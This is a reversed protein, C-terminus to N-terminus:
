IVQLVTRQRPPSLPEISNPIVRSSSFVTQGSSPPRTKKWNCATLDVMATLSLGCNPKIKNNQWQYMSTYVWLDRQKTNWCQLSGTLLSWYHLFFMLPFLSWWPCFHTVLLWMSYAKQCCQATILSNLNAAPKAYLM